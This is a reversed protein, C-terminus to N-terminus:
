YWPAAAQAGAREREPPRGARLSLRGPEWDASVGPGSGELGQGAGRGQPWTGLIHTQAGLTTRRGRPASESPKSGETHGLFVATGSHGRSGQGVHTVGGVGWVWEGPGSEPGAGAHGRVERVLGLRTKAEVESLCTDGVRRGWGDQWTEWETQPLGM